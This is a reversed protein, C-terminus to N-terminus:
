GAFSNGSEKLMEQLRPVLVTLPDEAEYRSREEEKYPVKGGPLEGQIAGVIAKRLSDQDFGYTSGFSPYAAFFQDFSTISSALVRARQAVAVELVGSQYVERYPLLLFDAEAFLATREENSIFRDLVVVSGDDPIEHGPTGLLGDGDRGAIVLLCHRRQEPTLARMAALAIDTGKSRRISGFLLMRIRSRDGLAPALSASMTEERGPVVPTVFTRFLDVKTMPGQYGLSRLHDAAATSHVILGAQIQRYIWAKFAAILMPERNHLSLVDHIVLITRRRRGWLLGLFIMDTLRLGYNHLLWLTNPNDVARVYGSFALAARLLLRLSSWNRGRYFNPLELARPNAFERDLYNSVVFPMWGGAALARAMGQNNSDMSSHLGITDVIQAQRLPYSARTM